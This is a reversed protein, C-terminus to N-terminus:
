IEPTGFETIHFCCDVFNAVSCDVYCNVANM